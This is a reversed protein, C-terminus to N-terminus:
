YMKMLGEKEFVNFTLKMKIEPLELAISVVMSMKEVPFARQPKM